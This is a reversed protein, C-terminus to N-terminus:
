KRLISAITIMALLGVYFYIGTKKAKQDKSEYVISGTIRTTNETNLYKNEQKQTKIQIPYVTEPIKKIKNESETTKNEKVIIEKCLEESVGKITIKKITRSELGEAIIKYEGDKLKKDCNPKLQIPVTLETTSYKTVINVRTQKSAKEKDKNEAWINVTKKNTNGKYAELKVKITQGWKAEKDQGLDYINTIEIESEEEPKESQVFITEQMKDNEPNIDCSSNIESEIIYINNAKINPSYSYTRYNLADEIEITQYEKITDGFINKIRRNLTLNNKEGYIKEIRIKFEPEEIFTNNTLIKVEWDCGIKAINSYGPTPESIQWTNNNLSYSEGDKTEEYTMEDILTYQDNYLWIEEGNNRLGNGISGDDVYLRTTNPSVEFNNYVRTTEDTIIAYGQPPIITGEKNYLGGEITDNDQDDGIVWENVDIEETGNNYLEIWENLTEDAIPNAMIETIIIEAKAIPIILLILLIIKKM